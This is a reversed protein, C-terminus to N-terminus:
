IASYIPCHARVTLITIAQLCAGQSSSVAEMLGSILFQPAEKRLVAFEETGKLQRLNEIIYNKVAAKLEEEEYLSAIGVM